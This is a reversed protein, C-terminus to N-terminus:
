SPISHSWLPHQASGGIMDPVDDQKKCMNAEQWSLYKSIVRDIKENHEVIIESGELKIVNVRRSAGVDTGLM